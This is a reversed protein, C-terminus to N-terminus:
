ATPINESIRKGMSTRKEISYGLSAYFAAVSENGEMIQLNIKTCGMCTLVHEAYSVLCSGIGQRRHLPSVGVSYIWGRHGDYGAMITGVIAEDTVAVFFLRDVAIKKDIVLSPNNHAAEYGFVTEWLAVVQTRHVSNVFPTITITTMELSRRTNEELHKGYCVSTPNGVYPGFAAIRQYGLSEYLRQAEPQRIGTELRITRYGFHLAVRELEVVIARAIGKRRGAPAVYMRKIEATEDDISRLAGCGIPQGGLRAVFFATRQAAAESLSFPCPPAGYRLSMEACLAQVLGQATEGIPDDLEITLTATNDSNIM